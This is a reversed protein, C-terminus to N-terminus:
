TIVGGLLIREVPLAVINSALAAGTTTVARLQIEVNGGEEFKLTEEQTLTVTLTKADNDATISDERRTVERGYGQRFTLYLSVLTGPEIDLEFVLTPTTGQTMGYGGQRATKEAKAGTRGSRGKNQWATTDPRAGVQGTFNLVGGTAARVRGAPPM